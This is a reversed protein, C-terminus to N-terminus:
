EVIYDLEKIRILEDQDDGSSHVVIWVCSKDSLNCPAHPVDGPIFIQEGQKVLTQSELKQGHFLTCEGELMYAITEIGKHIHPKSKGGPPMPLVNMCVKEAGATNRSVGADYTVGQAGEYKTGHKVLRVGDDVVAM